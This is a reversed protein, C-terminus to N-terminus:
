YRLEVIFQKGAASRTDFRNLMVQLLDIGAPM